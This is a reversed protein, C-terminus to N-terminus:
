ETDRSRRHGALDHAAKQAEAKRQKRMLKPEGHALRNQEAEREQKARKARKRVQRLNILEAM